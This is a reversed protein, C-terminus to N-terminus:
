EELQINASRLADRYRQRAEGGLSPARPSTGAVMGVSLELAVTSLLRVETALRHIDPQNRIKLIDIDIDKVKNRPGNRQWNM